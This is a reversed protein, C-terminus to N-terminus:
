GGTDVPIVQLAQVIPVNRLRVGLSKKLRRYLTPKPGQITFLRGLHYCQLPEHLLSNKHGSDCMNELQYASISSM